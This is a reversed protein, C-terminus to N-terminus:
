WGTFRGLVKSCLYPFRLNDKSQLDKFAIGLDHCTSAWVQPAPPPPLCHHASRSKQTCHVDGLQVLVDLENNTELISM